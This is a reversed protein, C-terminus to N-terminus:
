MINTENGIWQHDNNNGRGSVSGSIDIRRSRLYVRIDTNGAHLSQAANHSLNLTFATHPRKKM